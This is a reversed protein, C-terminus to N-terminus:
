DVPLPTDEEEALVAGDVGLHGPAREEQETEEREQVERKILISEEAQM